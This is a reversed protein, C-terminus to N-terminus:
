REGTSARILWTTSCNLSHAINRPTPLGEATMGSIYFLIPAITSFGDMSNIHDTRLISLQVFATCIRATLEITYPNNAACAPTRASDVRIFKYRCVKAFIHVDYMAFCNMYAYNCVVLFNLRQLATGSKVNIGGRTFPLSKKGLAVRVGTETSSDQELYFSSPWPLACLTTDLADCHDYRDARDKDIGLVYVSSITGLLLLVTAVALQLVALRSLLSQQKSLVFQQQQQQQLSALNARQRTWVRACICWVAAAGAAVRLAAATVLLHRASALTSHLAAAEPVVRGDPEVTILWQVATVGSAISLQVPAVLWSYVLAIVAAVASQRSSARLLCLTVLVDIFALTAVPLNLYLRGLVRKLTHTAVVSWCLSVTAAAFLLAQLVPWAANCWRASAPQAPQSARAEATDADDLAGFEHLEIASESEALRTWSRAGFM